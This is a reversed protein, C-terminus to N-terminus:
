LRATCGSYDIRVWGLPLDLAVNWYAGHYSPLALCLDMRPHAVLVSERMFVKQGKLSAAKEPQYM